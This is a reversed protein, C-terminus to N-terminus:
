ASLKGSPWPVFDVGQVQGVARSMGSEGDSYVKSVRFNRNQYQRIHDGVASSLSHVSKAKDGTGLPTAMTLGIPSGVSVCFGIGGIFIIDEELEQAASITRPLEKSVDSWM